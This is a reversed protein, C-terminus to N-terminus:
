MILAGGSCLIDCMGEHFRAYLRKFLEQDNLMIFQAEIEIKAWLCEKDRLAGCEYVRNKLIAWIKEIPNLDVGQAKITSITLKSNHCPANDQQLLFSEMESKLSPIVDKTMLDCYKESNQSGEIKRLLIRGTHTMAGRVM